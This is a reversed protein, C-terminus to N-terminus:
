LKTSRQKWMYKYLVPFYYTYSFFLVVLFYTYSNIGLGDSVIPTSLILWEGTVGLPYLIIFLSYRMWVLATPQRSILSLFYLSYRVLETISWAFSVMLVGKNFLNQTAYQNLFVNLLVLVLIRSAVQAATSAIPSKVWKLLAHLIELVAMGQAVNLLLLNVSNMVLGSSIYGVIFAAWFLFAILNYTALYYKVSSRM